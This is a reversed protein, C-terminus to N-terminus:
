SCMSALWSPSIESLSNRTAEACNRSQYHFPLDLRKGAEIEVWIKGEMLEVLKKSIALGLGTGGYNRTVTADVQSFPQFLRDM